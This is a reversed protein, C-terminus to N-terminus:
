ALQPVQSIEPSFVSEGPQAKDLRALIQAPSMPRDLLFGQLTECGLGTLFAQQEPTEVGEAVVELRLAKALAIIASVIVWDENGLSMEKVFARDIKLESAPLRKLYLLSSYGTGFDDISAKVGLNTLQELTEITTEPCRMAVTETVEITLMKPPICHREIAGAVMDLLDPQEFQVASLNVAVTWHDFGQLHWERLQRCAENLVWRGIPIILGTKEAMPLFADPTLLGRVPHQWRLLAEFGRVPGAPAEFKPQYLLRLEGNTEALRLDHLLQLQEAANANM